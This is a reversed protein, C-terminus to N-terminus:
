KLLYPKIAKQWIAYGKATMHLKDEKFIDDMPTGDAKLMKHYVDVFGTKSKKKLFKKIMENTAVMEPMLNKRSPSPKISIFLIPTQPLNKRILAFLEKFRMFVLQATVTDFAALDNEGCYIFIQNPKYPLIIDDAYRIVDQLSSGGFGRNIIKYGPFYNRIDTWMRLSSSGVFLIQNKAPFNISDQKKFSQIEDWFAPQATQAFLGATLLFFVLVGIIKLKKM